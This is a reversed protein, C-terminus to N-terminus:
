EIMLLLSVFVQGVREQRSQRCLKSVEATGPPRSRCHWREVESDRTQELVQGSLQTRPLFPNLSCSVGIHHSVFVTFILKWSFSRRPEYSHSYKGSTRLVRRVGDYLVILYVEKSDRVWLLIALVSLNRYPSIFVWIDVSTRDSLRSYPWRLMISNDSTGRMVEKQPLLNSQFQPVELTDYLEVLRSVERRSPCM